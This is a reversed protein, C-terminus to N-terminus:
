RKKDERCNWLLFLGIFLLPLSLLQGMDITHTWFASQEEKFFEIVFRFTFVLTIFLGSRWGDRRKKTMCIFLFFISLYFLAEYLQAPHRPVPAAGSAPHGFTVAWPLDSPKGLIEQNFFNGIRIFFGVLGATLVLYDLWKLYSFHNYKKQFFFLAVLLGVTGGHSSLGGEWFRFVVLPDALTIKWSQYFVVDFLRAGIVVGIIVYTALKDAYFKANEEGDRKLRWILVQFGLFFGLAFFFGYWLIPRGLIPLNWPFMDPSPDWYM